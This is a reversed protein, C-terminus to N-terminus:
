KALLWMNLLRLLVFLIQIQLLICSMKKYHSEPNTLFDFFRACNQRNDITM